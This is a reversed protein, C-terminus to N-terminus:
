PTRSEVLTLEAFLPPRTNKTMKQMACYIFSATACESVLVEWLPIAQDEADCIEGREVRLSMISVRTRCRAGIDICSKTRTLLEYCRLM